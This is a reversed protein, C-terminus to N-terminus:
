ASQAEDFLAEVKERLDAISVEVVQREKRLRRLGAINTRKDRGVVLIQEVTTFRGKRSCSWRRRRTNEHWPRSDICHARKGCKPCKM